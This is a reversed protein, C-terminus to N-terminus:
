AASYIKLNLQSIADVSFESILSIFEEKQVGQVQAAAWVGSIKNCFEDLDLIGRHTCESYVESVESRFFSLSRSM